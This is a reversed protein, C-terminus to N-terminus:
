APRSRGRQRFRRGLERAFESRYRRGVRRTARSRRRVCRIVQVVADPRARRDGAGGARAMHSRRQPLLRAQLAPCGRSRRGAGARVGRALGRCDHNAPHRNRRRERPTRTAPASTGPGRGDVLFPSGDANQLRPSRVGPHGRPRARVRGAGFRRTRADHRKSRAVAFVVRVAEDGHDVAGHQGHDSSQSGRDALLARIDQVGLGPYASYFGIPPYNNELAWEYFAKVNKAVPTPPAAEVHPFVSDFVFATKDAFDQIYKEIDGDFITFFGM